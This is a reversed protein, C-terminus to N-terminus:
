AKAGDIRAWVKDGRKVILLSFGAIRLGPAFQRLNQGGVPCEAWRGRADFLAGLFDEAEGRVSGKGKMRPPESFVLKAKM